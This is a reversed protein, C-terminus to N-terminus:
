LGLDRALALAGAREAAEAEALDDLAAARLAPDGPDQEARPVPFRAALRGLAAAVRRYAAAARHLGQDALFAAADARLRAYAQACHSHGPRAARGAALAGRWAGYAALGGVAGPLAPERGSLHGLALRLAGHLAAAASRPAPQALTLVLLGPSDDLEARPVVFRDAHIAAALEGAEDDCAYVLAWGPARLGRVLPPVGQDLAARIAALARERFAGPSEGPSPAALAPEWGLRRVAPGYVSDPWAEPCFSTPGSLKLNLRFAFATFGTVDTIPRHDGAYTLATHLAGAFSLWHATVHPRAVERRASTLVAMGGQCCLAAGM